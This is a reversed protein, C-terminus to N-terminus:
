PIMAGLPGVALDNVSIRLAVYGKVGVDLTVVDAVRGESIQHEYRSGVRKRHTRYDVLRDNKFFNNRIVLVTHKGNIDDPITTDVVSLM